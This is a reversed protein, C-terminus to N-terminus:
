SSERLLNNVVASMSLKKEKAIEELKERAAPELSLLTKVSNKPKRGAGSRVGGHSLTATAAKEM